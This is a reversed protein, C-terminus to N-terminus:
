GIGGRDNTIRARSGGSTEPGSGAMNQNHHPRWGFQRRRNGTAATKVTRSFTAAALRKTALKSPNRGAPKKAHAMVGTIPRIVSSRELIKTRRVRWALDISARWRRHSCTPTNAIGTSCTKVTVVKIRIAGAKHVAPIRDHM